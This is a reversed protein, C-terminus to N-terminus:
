KGGAKKAELEIKLKNEALKLEATALDHKKKAKEFETLNKDAEARAAAELGEKSKEAAMVGNRYYYIGSGVPREFTWETGGGPKASVLLSYHNERIVRGSKSDRVHTTVSFPKQM